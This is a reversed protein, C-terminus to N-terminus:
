AESWLIRMEERHPVAEIRKLKWKDSKHTILVMKMPKFVEIEYYRRCIIDFATGPKLYLDWEVQSCHKAGGGDPGYEDLAARFTAYSTYEKERNGRELEFKDKLKSYKITGGLMKRQAIVQKNLSTNTVVFAQLIRLKGTLGIHAPVL